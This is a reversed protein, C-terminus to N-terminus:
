IQEDFISVVDEWRRRTDKLMLEASNFYGEVQGLLVPDDMVRKDIMFRLCMTSLETIADAIEKMQEAAFSRDQEEPDFPKLRDYEKQLARKESRLGKVEEKVAADFTKELKEVRAAMKSRSDLLRNIAVKLDDHYDENLPIVENEITLCEIDVVITGNDALQRLKRLDKHGVSLQECSLLFKEGLVSLNLLEKDVKSRSMGVSNCFNDWNNVGPIGKYFKKAKVEQLWVFSSVNACQALMNATQIQGIVKYCQAIGKEKETQEVVAEEEADREAQLTALEIETTRVQRDATAVVAADSVSPGAETAEFKRLQRRLIALKTKAGGQVEFHTVAMELTTKNTRELAATFNTDSAPTGVLWGYDEDSWGQGDEKQPM